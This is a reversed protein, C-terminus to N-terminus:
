LKQWFRDVRTELCELCMFNLSLERCDCPSEFSSHNCNHRFVLTNSSPKGCCYCEGGEKELAVIMSHIIDATEEVIRRANANASLAKKLRLISM